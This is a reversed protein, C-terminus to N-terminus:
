GRGAGAPRRIGRRGTAAVADPPNEAEHEPALPALGIRDRIRATTYVTMRTHAAIETDTLGREWLDGVLRERNKVSLAEAPESGGLCARYRERERRPLTPESM